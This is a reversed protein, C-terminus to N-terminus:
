LAGGLRELEGILRFIQERTLVGTVNVRARNYGIKELDFLGRPPPEIVVRVKPVEPTPLALPLEIKIVQPDAGYRVGQLRADM